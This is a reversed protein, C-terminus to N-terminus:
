CGALRSRLQGDATFVCGHQQPITLSVRCNTTFSGHPPMMLRAPSARAAQTASTSALPPAAVAVTIASVLRAAVAASSSGAPSPGGPNQHPVSLKGTVTGPLAGYLM